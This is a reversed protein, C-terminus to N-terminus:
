LDALKYKERSYFFLCCFASVGVLLNVFDINLDREVVIKKIIGNSYYFYSVIPYLLGSENIISGFLMPIILTVSILTASLFMEQKIYLMLFYTLTIMVFVNYFNYILAYGLNFVLHFKIVWICYLPIYFILTVTNFLFLQIVFSMEFLQTNSFGSAKLLYIRSNSFLSNTLSTILLAFFISSIYFIGSLLTKAINNTNQNLEVSSNLEIRFGFFYLYLFYIGVLIILSKKNIIEYFNFLFIKKLNFIIM